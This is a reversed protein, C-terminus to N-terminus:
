QPQPQELRIRFTRKLNCTACCGVDIGGTYGAGLQVDTASLFGCSQHSDCIALRIKISSFRPGQFLAVTMRTPLLGHSVVCFGSEVMSWVVSHDARQRQVEALGISQFALLHSPAATIRHVYWFVLMAIPRQPALWPLTFNDTYM